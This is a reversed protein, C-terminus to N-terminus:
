EGDPLSGANRNMAGVAKAGIGQEVQDYEATRDGM